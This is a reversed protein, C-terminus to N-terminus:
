VPMNDFQAEIVELQLDEKLRRISPPIDIKEVRMKLLINELRHHYVYRREKDSKHIKVVLDDLESKLHRRNM